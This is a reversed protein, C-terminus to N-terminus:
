KMRRKKKVTADGNKDKLAPKKRYVEIAQTIISQCYESNYLVLRDSNYLSGSTTSGSSSSSSSIIPSFVYTIADHLPFSKKDLVKRNIYGPYNYRDFIILGKVIFGNAKAIDVIGWWCFPEITKHTVHVESTCGDNSNGDNTKLYASINIFFKRLLEQNEQLANTQGDRGEDVRICPFNWIVVDIRNLLNTHIYANSALNTADVDHM